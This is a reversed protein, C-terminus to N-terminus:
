LAIERKDVVASEFYCRLKETVQFESPESAIWDHELAAKATMRHTPDPHLPGEIFELGAKSM